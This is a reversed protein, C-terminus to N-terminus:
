EWGLIGNNEVIHVNNGADNVIRKSYMKTASLYWMRCEREVQREGKFIQGYM